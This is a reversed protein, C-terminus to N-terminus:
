EAVDCCPQSWIELVNGGDNITRGEEVCCKDRTANNGAVSTSQLGLIMACQTCGALKPTSSPSDVPVLELVTGYYGAACRYQAVESCVNPAPNPIARKEYGTKEASGWLATTDNDLDAMTPCATCGLSSPTLATTTPTPNNIKSAYYNSKCRYKTVSTCGNPVLPTCSQVGAAGPYSLWETCDPAVPCKTCSLLNINTVESTHGNADYYNDACMYVTTEVCLDDYSCERNIKKKYVTNYVSWNIDSTCNICGPSVDCADVNITCKTDGSQNRFVELSIRQPEEGGFCHLCNTASYLGYRGYESPRIQYYFTDGYPEKCRNLEVLEESPDVPYQDDPRSIAPCAIAWVRAPAVMM